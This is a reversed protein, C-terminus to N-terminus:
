KGTQIARNTEAGEGATTQPMNGPVDAGESPGRLSTQADAGRRSGFPCGALCLAALILAAISLLPRRM